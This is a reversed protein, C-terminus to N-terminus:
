VNLFSAMGALCQRRLEPALFPDRDDMAVSWNTHTTEHVSRNMTM